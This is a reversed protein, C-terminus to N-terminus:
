QGANCQFGPLAGDYASTERPIDPVGGAVRLPTQYDTHTKIRRGQRPQHRRRDINRHNAGGALKRLGEPSVYDCGWQFYRLVLHSFNASWM